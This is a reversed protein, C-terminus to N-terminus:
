CSGGGDDEDDSLARYIADAPDAYLRRAEQLQRPTKAKAQQFREHVGLIRGIVDLFAQPDKAAIETRTVTMSCPLPQYPDDLAALYARPIDASYLLLAHRNATPTLLYPHQM